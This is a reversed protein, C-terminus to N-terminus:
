EEKQIQIFKDVGYSLGIDQASNNILKDQNATLQMPVDCYAHRAYFSKSYLSCFGDIQAISAFLEKRQNLNLLAPSPNFSIFCQEKFQSFKTGSFQPHAALNALMIKEPGYSQMKALYVEVSEVSAESPYDVFGYIVYYPCSPNIHILDQMTFATKEKNVDWFLNIRDINNKNVRRQVSLIIGMSNKLLNELIIEMAVFAPMVKRNYEDYNIITSRDKQPLKLYSLSSKKLLDTFLDMSCQSVNKQFKLILLRAANKKLHTEKFIRDTDLYSYTVNKSICMFRTLFYAQLLFLETSSCKFGLFQPEFIDKLKKNKYDQVTLIQIWKQFQQELAEIEKLRKSVLAGNLLLEKASLRSLHLIHYARIHCATDGVHPDFKSYERDIFFAKLSQKLEQIFFTLLQAIVPFNDKNLFTEKDQPLLDLLSIGSVNSLLPFKEKILPTNSQHKNKGNLFEKTKVVPYIDEIPIDISEYSM